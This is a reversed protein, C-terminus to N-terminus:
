IIQRERRAQGHVLAFVPLIVLWLNLGWWIPDFWLRITWFSLAMLGACFMLSLAIVAVLQKLVPDRLWFRGLLGLVAFGVDLPFFSWNWAVILPNEYDSYMQEPPVLQWGAVAALALAWYLLMGAETVTLLVKM